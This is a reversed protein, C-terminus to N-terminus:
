RVVLCTLAAAIADLILGAGAAACALLILPKLM